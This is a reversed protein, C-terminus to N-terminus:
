EVNGAARSPDRNLRSELEAIQTQAPLPDPNGVASAKFAALAGELDGKEKRVIGLGYEYEPIDPRAASASQFMAEARNKQGFAIQRRGDRQKFLANM